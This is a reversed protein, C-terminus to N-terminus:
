GIFRYKVIRFIKIIICKRATTKFIFDFKIWIKVLIDTSILVPCSFDYPEIRWVTAINGGVNTFTKLLVQYANESIETDRLM